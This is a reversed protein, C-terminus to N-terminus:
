QTDILHTDEHTNEMHNIHGYPDYFHVSNVKPFPRSITAQPPGTNKSTDKNKNFEKLRSGPKHNNQLTQERPSNKHICFPGRFPFYELTGDHQILLERM